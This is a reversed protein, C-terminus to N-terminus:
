LKTIIVYGAGNYTTFTTSTGSNYSGGSGGPIQYSNAATSGGYGGSYGGGGGGAGSANTGGGGGGFGGNPQPNPNTAGQGGIFNGLRGKGGLGHYSENSPSNDSLGFANQNEPPGLGASLWGGGGGGGWNAPYGGRNGGTGYYGNSFKGSGDVPANVSNQADRSDNGGQGSYPAGGGGGGAIILPATGNYVWSAGGGGGGGGASGTVTGIQGIVISLVQGVALSFTGSILAAYGGREGNGGTGGNSGAATINYSGSIPVTWLDIGQTSMDFYTNYWGSPTPSGSIGSRAQSLSPGYRGSIGTFTANTFSYLSAAGSYSILVYGDSPNTGVNTTSSGNSYYGGGGGTVSSTYESGGGGSYGGGGGPRFANDNTCAGGGGFGGQMNTGGYGSSIWQGGVGGNLFSYAVTPIYCGGTVQGNGSYGGGGGGSCGAGDVGGGNGSQAGVGGADDLGYNAYPADYGNTYSGWPSQWKAGGGGGSILLINNSNDTVFTGGGGSGGYSPSPSYYGSNGMQGVVIKIVQATTLSFTAQVVRGNGGTQQYANGGKAGAVIITYTGTTPVTWLQYGQTTMNFFSTNTNWNSPAPTGTLGSRAQSIIPGNQGTAGGPTFTATTFTYLAPPTFGALFNWIGSSYQYLNSNSTAFWEDGGSAVSPQTAAETYLPLTPARLPSTVILSGSTLNSTFSGTGITVNATKVPNASAIVLSRGVYITEAM